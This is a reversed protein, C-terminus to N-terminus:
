CHCSRSFPAPLAFKEKMNDETDNRQIICLDGLSHIHSYILLIKALIKM